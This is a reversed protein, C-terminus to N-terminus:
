LHTNNAVSDLKMQLASRVARLLDQITFPKPIFAHVDLCAALKRDEPNDRGTSIIIPLNALHKHRRIFACVEFGDLGPMEIDLIALNVPAPCQGLFDAAAKGDHVVTVSYGESVLCAQMLKALCALDDAILIRPPNAEAKSPQLQTAIADAAEAAQIHSPYSNM